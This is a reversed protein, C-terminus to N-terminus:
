KSKLKSLMEVTGKNEPNLKLSKEYCNIALEKDGNTTYIEGLEDFTQWSEPFEETNFKLIAIGEKLKNAKYLEDGAVLLQVEDFIYRPNKEKKLQRYLDIAADVGKIKIIDEITDKLLLMYQAPRLKPGTNLIRFAIDDVMVASNSLVVVGNKNKKDFVIFTRFGATGGSHMRIDKEGKKLIHWGLGIYKYREDTSDRIVQTLEMASSLNSKTLGLEASLFLLLDNVNSMLNGAPGITINNIGAPAPQHLENHGTALLSKLEPTLTALTKKMKLPKCIREQLLADFPVGAKLSLIHGLLGMGFTSYEYKSSVDRTLQYQSIFDYMMQITYGTYPNNPDSSSLNGAERPFGSTHTALHLLTIEKGNKTPTKVTKPLYKSIPDDLKVEGKQVMDALLLSTFVKTISGIEYLTNGDPQKNSDDRAVGYGFVQMGKENITGVVIGKSRKNYMEQRIISKISDLPLQAISIASSGIVILFLLFYRKDIM